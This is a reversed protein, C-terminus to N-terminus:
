GHAGWPDRFIEEPFGPAVKGTTAYRYLAVHFISTAASVVISVTLLSLIAITIGVGVSPGGLAFGIAVPIFVVLALLGGFLGLGIEGAIMEGWTRRLLNASRRMAGYPSQKEYILVPVAFYTAVRWGIGAIKTIIKGANKSKEEILWLITGVTSALLVWELILKLNQNSVRFGDRVTPVGGEFRIMACTILAVNLYVTILYFLFYTPLFKVIRTPSSFAGGTLLTAYDFVLFIISTTILSLLPFILLEKDKRVVGLSMDVLELGRGLRGL